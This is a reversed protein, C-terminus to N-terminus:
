RAMDPGLAHRASSRAIAISVVVFWVCLVLMNFFAVFALIPVAAFSAWCLWRPLLCTTRAGLAVALVLAAAGLGVGFFVLWDYLTGTTQAFHAFSPTLKGSTGARQENDMLLDGIPAARVASAVAVTAALLSGAFAVALIQVETGGATRILAVIGALFWMLALVALAAAVWAMAGQLKTTDDAFNAITHGPTEHIDSRAGSVFSLFFAVAFGGGACAIARRSSARPAAGVRDVPPSGARMSSDM